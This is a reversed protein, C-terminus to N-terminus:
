LGYRFFLSEKYSQALAEMYHRAPYAPDRMHYVYRTESSGPCAFRRRDSGGKFAIAYWCCLCVALETRIGDQDCVLLLEAKHRESKAGFTECSRCSTM